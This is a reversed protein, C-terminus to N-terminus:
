QNLIKEQIIDITKSTKDWSVSFTPEKKRLAEKAILIWNNYDDMIIKSEDSLVKSFIIDSNISTLLDKTLEYLEPTKHSNPDNQLIIILSKIKITKDYLEKIKENRLQQGGKFIELQKAYETKVGEIKQTLEKIDQKTALNESKVKLFNVVIIIICSIVVSIVLYIPYFKTRDHIVDAIIKKIQEPEM